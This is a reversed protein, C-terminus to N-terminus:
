EKTRKLFNHHAVGIEETSVDDVPTDFIDEIAPWNYRGELQVPRLYKVLVSGEKDTRVVEGEFYMGDFDTVM